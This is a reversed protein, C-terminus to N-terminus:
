GDYHGNLLHEIIKRDETTVAALAQHWVPEGLRDKLDELRAHADHWDADWLDPALVDRLSQLSRHLHALRPQHVPAVRANPCATCLLFSARCGAGVLTFPSNRYDTCGVTATELDDPAPEDSLRARLVTNRAHDLAESIGEAIVPIAAEQVQPEPLVYVSDHTDQSNQGPERRHLANVTKRLRRMPAGPLGAKRAWHSAAERHLGIGFMGVWLDEPNDRERPYNERWVVLRDLDPDLDAVIERAPATAQLAKTILRGPSDAGFDTFNRTEFYRGVGRRAKELELRYIPFGGEGSDPTARPVSLKSVTTANFGHEASLLVALATAEMRSLFLRRWTHLANEGGLAIRYRSIVRVRSDTGQYRPVNGTRALAELAEGVLHERTDAAVTGARWKRLLETNESIRLHAARFMRQAATRVQTFEDPQYATETKKVLPVRKAMAEKLPATVRGDELLFSAVRTIQDRGSANQPRSLRWRNWLSATLEPVDTPPHDQEALFRAFTRLQRWSALSASLANWGGGPECRAAFLVAWSRQM